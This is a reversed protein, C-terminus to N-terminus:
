VFKTVQTESEPKNATKRAAEARTLAIKVFPHDRVAGVFMSVFLNEVRSLNHEFLEGVTFHFFLFLHFLPRHNRALHHWTSCHMLLIDSKDHRVPIKEDDREAMLWSRVAAWGRWDNGCRKRWYCRACNDRFSMFNWTAPLTAPWEVCGLNSLLPFVTNIPAIRTAAETISSKRHACFKKKAFDIFAFNSPISEERPPWRYM